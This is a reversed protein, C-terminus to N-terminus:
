GLDGSITTAYLNDLPEQIVQGHEAAYVSTERNIGAETGTLVHGLALTNGLADVAVGTEEQEEGDGNHAIMSQISLLDERTLFGEIIEIEEALSDKGMIRRFNHDNSSMQGRLAGLVDNTTWNPYAIEIKKVLDIFNQVTRQGRTEVFFFTKSGETRQNIRLEEWINMQRLVSLRDEVDELSEYEITEGDGVLERIIVLGDQEM